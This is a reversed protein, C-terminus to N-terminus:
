RYIHIPWSYKDMLFSQSEGLLCDLFYNIVITENCLNHLKKYGNEAIELARSKNEKFYKIKELLDKQDDFYVAEEDRKLFDHIQTENEIFIMLGNGAYQSIRDSLSYKLQPKRQLCLGMYCTQIKEEFESAWIPQINRYGYFKFKIDTNNTNLYDLIKVRPNKEEIM